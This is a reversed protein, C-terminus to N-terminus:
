SHFDKELVKCGRNRMFFQGCDRPRIHRLGDGYFIFNMAIHDYLPRKYKVVRIGSQACIIKFEMSTHAGFRCLSM